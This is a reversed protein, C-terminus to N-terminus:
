IQRVQADLWVGYHREGDDDWVFQGNEDQFVARRTDDTFDWYGIFTAIM